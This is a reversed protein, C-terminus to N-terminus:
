NQFVFDPNPLTGAQERLGRAAAIREAAAKLVPQAALARTIADSLSLAVQAGAAAPALASTIGVIVLAGFDSVRVAGM